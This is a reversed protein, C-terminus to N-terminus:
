KNEKLKINEHTAMSGVCKKVSRVQLYLASLVM